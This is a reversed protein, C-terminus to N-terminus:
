PAYSLEGQRILAFTAFLQAETLCITTVPGYGANQQNHVSDRWAQAAIAFLVKPHLVQLEEASINGRDTTLPTNM